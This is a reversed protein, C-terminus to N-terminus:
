LLGNARMHALVAEPEGTLPLGNAGEYAKIAGRTRPGIVGDVALDQGWAVLGRQALIVPDAEDPVIPAGGEVSGTAVPDTPPDAVPANAVSRGPAPLPLPVPRAGIRAARVPSIDSAGARIRALLEAGPVGTVPLGASREYAEVAGRTRSGAIGDIAGTYFGLDSLESQLGFVVPDARTDADPVTTEVAAIATGSSAEFWPAAHPADQGFAAKLVLVAVLAPVGHRVLGAPDGMARAGIAAAAARLGALSVSLAGVARRLAIRSLPGLRALSARAMGALADLVPSPNRGSRSPARFRSHTGRAEGALADSPQGYTVHHPVDAPHSEGYGHPHPAHGYPTAAAHPPPAAYGQPAPDGWVQGQPAQANTWAMPTGHGTSGDANTTTMTNTM